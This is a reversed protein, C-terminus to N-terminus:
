GELGGEWYVHQGWHLSFMPASLNQANKLLASSLPSSDLSKVGPNTDQSQWKNAVPGPSTKFIQTEVKGGTVYSNIIIPTNDDWSNGPPNLQCMYIM